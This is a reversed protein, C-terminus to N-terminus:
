KEPKPSEPKVDPRSDPKAEPQVPKPEVPTTPRVRAPPKPGTWSEVHKASKQKTTRIRNSRRAMKNVESMLSDFITKEEALYQAYREKQLEEENSMIYVSDQNNM